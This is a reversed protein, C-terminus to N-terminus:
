WFSSGGRKKKESAAPKTKAIYSAAIKDIEDAKLRDIGVVNAAARAYVRCDLAENRDYKKVWEQVPFGKVLRTQIQEATLMKFYHHDYQPFHCYGDPASGDELLEVRLWGYLEAKLITVGVNWVKVKGVKKGSRTTDIQKPPAVIVNQKHQGKCPIVRGPDFRACFSYVETTNYGSDVAMLRLPMMVGDEREWQEGVIDALQYWVEAKSTDGILVRYDVSYSRKGRCWGVIEVEIRDRQIDVGATLFAVSRPPTNITYTERRNYLNQWEPADGKEKWTQGLITNVFVRMLNDDNSKMADEYQQAIDAWSLWGLPSYLSNIHFGRKHPVEAAPVTARWRGQAMMSTKFREEIGSGCEPCFYLVSEPKGDDWKLNEFQFHDEHGCHPCPMFYRRQETADYAAQIVSVGDVTPTSLKYIKKKAGYTSTRKEALSIPSGEDDVNLPYADVEDLVLVRVPRSRLSAASNAGSLVLIGGPFRKHFKTNGSDREKNPRVKSGLTPSNEIMPDVRSESIAKAMEITPMVYMIPCPDIDMYCGTMNLGSETAGLQVGKSLVVENIASTPSLSDMIEKLYPTRSTSWRGPEAASESTLRRNTDAWESITVLPVPKIADLLGRVLDIDGQKM